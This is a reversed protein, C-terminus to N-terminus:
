TALRTATEAIEAAIEALYAKQEATLEIGAM